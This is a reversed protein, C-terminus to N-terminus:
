VRGSGNGAFDFVSAHVHSEFPVGIDNNRTFIFDDLAVRCGGEPWRSQHALQLSADKRSWQRCHWCLYSRLHPVNNGVFAEASFSISSSVFSTQGRLVAKPEALSVIDELAKSIRLSSDFLTPDWRFAWILFKTVGMFFCMPLLFSLSFAMSVKRVRSYFPPWSTLLTMLAAM